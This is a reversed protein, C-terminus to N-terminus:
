KKDKRRYKAVIAAERADRAAKVHEWGLNDDILYRRFDDSQRLLPIMEREGVPTVSEPRERREDCFTAAAM